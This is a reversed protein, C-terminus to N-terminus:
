AMGALRWPQQSRAQSAASSLLFDPGSSWGSAAGAGLARALARGRRRRPGWAGRRGRGSRGQVSPLPHGGIGGVARPDLVSVEERLSRGASLLQKRLAGQSPTPSPWDFAGFRKQWDSGPDRFHRVSEWSGERGRLSM